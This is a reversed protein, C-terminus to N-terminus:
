PTVTVKLAHQIFAECLPSLFRRKDSVMFFDRTINRCERFRVSRLIGARMELQVAISSLVSIGIGAKIAEKVASTSGMEAVINFDELRYGHEKLCREFMMRTGSGSERVIFPKKILERASITTRRAWEGSNPVVLLLTDGGFRTFQLHPENMEAGVFGIEISGALLEAIIDKTDAIKIHVEVHPFTKRFEGVIKPLVYEGPITSGGVRLKGELRKLFKNMGEAAATKLELIQKGYSYLIEATPTPRIKRGLRDFLKTKIQSELSNIHDSITPQTLLLKEAAKSFSREEYVYCFIELLRLDM